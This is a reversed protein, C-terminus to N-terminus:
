GPSPLPWEGLSDPAARFGDGPSRSAAPAQRPSHPRRDALPERPARPTPVVRVARGLLVAPTIPPGGPFPPQVSPRPVDAADCTPRAEQM